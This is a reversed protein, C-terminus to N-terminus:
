VISFLFLAAIGILHAVMAQLIAEILSTFHHALLAPNSSSASMRAQQGLVVLVGVTAGKALRGVQIVREDSDDEDARGKSLTRRTLAAKQSTWATREPLTVTSFRLKNALSYHYNIFASRKSLIYKEAKFPATGRTSFPETKTEMNFKARLSNMGFIDGGFSLAWERKLNNAGVFNSSWTFIGPSSDDTM